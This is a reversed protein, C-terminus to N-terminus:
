IYKKIVHDLLTTLATLGIGQIKRYLGSIGESEEKTPRSIINEKECKKVYELAAVISEEDAVIKRSELVAIDNSLAGSSHIIDIIRTSDGYQNGFEIEANSKNDALIRNESKASDHTEGVKIKIPM